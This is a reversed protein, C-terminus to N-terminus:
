LGSEVRSRAELLKPRAMMLYLLPGLLPLLLVAIVWLGLNQNSDAWVRTPTGLIDTLALLVPVLMLLIILIETGRLM